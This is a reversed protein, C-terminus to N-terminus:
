FDWKVLTVKVKFWYGHYVFKVQVHDLHGVQPSIEIDLCEFTIARIALCLCVCLCYSFVVKRFVCTTIFYVKNKIDQVCVTAAHSEWETFVFKIIERCTRRVLLHCIITPTLLSHAMDLILIFRFYSRLYSM